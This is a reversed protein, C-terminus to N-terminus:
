EGNREMREHQREKALEKALSGGDAYQAQGETPEEGEVLTNGPRQMGAHVQEISAGQPATTTPEASLPQVAPDDAIEKELQAIEAETLLREKELRTERGRKHCYWFVFLLVSSVDNALAAVTLFNPFSFTGFLALSWLVNMGMFAPFRTRLFTMITRLLGAVAGPKTVLDKLNPVKIKMGMKGAAGAATSLYASKLGQKEAAAALVEPGLSGTM